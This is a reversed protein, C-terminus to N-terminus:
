LLNNNIKPNIEEEAVEEEQLGRHGPHHGERVAPVEIAVRVELAEVVLAEIAEVVEAAGPHGPPVPEQLLVWAELVQAETREM